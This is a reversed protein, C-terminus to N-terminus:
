VRVRYLRVTLPRARACACRPGHVEEGGRAQEERSKGAWIGSVAARGGGTGRKMKKGM